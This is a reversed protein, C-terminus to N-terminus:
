AKYKDVAGNTNCKVEFVWKSGVAKRDAPLETLAWAQKEQLSKFEENMADIWKKRESAPLYKIETM